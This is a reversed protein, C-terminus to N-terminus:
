YTSHGGSGGTIEPELENTWDVENQWHEFHFYYDWSFLIVLNQVDIVHVSHVAEGNQFFLWIYDNAFCLSENEWLIM